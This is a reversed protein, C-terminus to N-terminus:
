YDGYTSNVDGCTSFLVYGMPERRRAITIFERYEYHGSNNLKGNV